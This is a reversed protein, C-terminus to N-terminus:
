GDDHRRRRPRKRRRRREAETKLKENVVRVVAEDIKEVQCDYELRENRPFTMRKPILYQIAEWDPAAVRDMWEKAIGNRDNMAAFEDWLEAGTKKKGSPFHLPAMNINVLALRIANM